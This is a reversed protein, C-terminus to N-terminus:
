EAVEEALISHIESLAKEAAEDSLETILKAKGILAPAIAKLQKIFAGELVGADAIAAQLQKQPTDPTFAPVADLLRPDPLMPINDEPDILRKFVPKEYTPAQAQRGGIDRAEDEDTVGSIGFAVRVAEKIAKHRLMRRPFQKWPETQRYCESFYETVKTAHSRDKRHIVATVSYPDGNSDDTYHFEIGDLQPQANLLHLWGDVSVVPTIGGRSPFAYIQRTLPDLGYRNSVAVLALLEENTAGKFCTAKLTDLLKTPEVNIRGAMVALASPKAQPIVAIENSM